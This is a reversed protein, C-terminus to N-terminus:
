IRGGAPGDGFNGRVPGFGVHSGDGSGGVHRGVRGVGVRSGDGGGKVHMGARGGGRVSDTAPLDWASQTWPLWGWGRPRGCGGSRGADPWEAPEGMASLRRRPERGTGRATVQGPKRWWVPRSRHQARRAAASGAAAGTRAGPASGSLSTMNDDSNEPPEGPQIGGPAQRPSSVSSKKGIVAALGASCYTKPALASQKRHATRAAHRYAMAVRCAPM